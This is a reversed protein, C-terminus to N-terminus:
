LCNLLVLQNWKERTQQWSRTTHGVLTMQGAFEEWRSCKLKKTVDLSFKSRLLVPEEEVLLVIETPIWNARRERKKLAANKESM